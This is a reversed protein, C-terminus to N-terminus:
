YRISCFPCLNHVLSCLICFHWIMIFVLSYVGFMIGIIRYHGLIYSTCLIKAICCLFGGGTLGLIKWLSVDIQLIQHDLAATCPASPNVHQKTASLM